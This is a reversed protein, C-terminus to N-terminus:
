SVVPADDPDEPIEDPDEPDEPVEDDPPDDDPPVDLPPADLPAGAVCVSPTFFRSSVSMSQPPALAGFHASPFPQADAPSQPLPTQSRPGFVHLAGAGSSPTFFPASVPM